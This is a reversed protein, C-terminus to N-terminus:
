VDVVCQALWGDDSQAVRLETFTAGKIEVTPVFDARDLSEGRATASLQGNEIRVEFMSFVMRRTAMEYILANLWDLLLVELDPATCAINVALSPAVREPDVLVATLARATEEFAADLSPGVGRVGIDAGHEFHDWSRNPHVGPEDKTVM